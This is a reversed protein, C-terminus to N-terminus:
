GLCAGIGAIFLGVAAILMPRWTQKMYPFFCVIESFPVITCTLFWATSFRFVVALFMLSGVEWVIFGAWFLIYGLQIMSRVAFQM